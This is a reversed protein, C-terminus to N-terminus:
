NLARSVAYRLQDGSRCSESIKMAHARRPMERTQLSASTSISPILMNICEDFQRAVEHEDISLGTVHSTSPLRQKKASAITSSVCSWRPTPLCTTFRDLVTLCSDLSDSRWLRSLVQWLQKEDKETWVRGNFRLTSSNSSANLVGDQSALLRAM